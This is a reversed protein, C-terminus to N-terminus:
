YALRPTNDTINFVSGRHGGQFTAVKKGTIEFIKGIFASDKLNDSEFYGEGHFCNSCQSSYHTYVMVPINKDVGTVEQSFFGALIIQEIIVGKSVNLNWLVPWHAMLTIVVPHASATVNIQVEERPPIGGPLLSMCERIDPKKCEGQFIGISHVEVDSSYQMKAQVPTTLETPTENVLPVVPLRVQKVGDNVLRKPYKDVQVVLKENGQLEPMSINVQM